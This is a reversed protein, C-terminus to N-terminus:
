QRLQQEVVHEPQKSFRQWETTATKAAATTTATPVTGHDKTEHFQHVVDVHDDKEKEEEDDVVLATQTANTGRHTSLHCLHTSVLPLLQRSIRLGDSRPDMSVIDVSGFTRFNGFQVATASYDLLWPSHYGSCSSISAAMSVFHGHGLRAVPAPGGQLHLVTDAATGVGLYEALGMQVMRRPCQGVLIGHRDM